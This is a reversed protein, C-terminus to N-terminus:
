EADDELWASVITMTTTGESTSVVGRRPVTHAVWQPRRRHDDMGRRGDLDQFESSGHLDSITAVLLRLQERDSAASARTLDNLLAANLTPWANGSHDGPAFGDAKRYKTM